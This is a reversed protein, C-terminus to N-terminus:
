RKVRNLKDMDLLTIQSAQIDILGETRLDSLIRIVTETSAGVLHAWNERSLTMPPSVVPAPNDQASASLNEPQPSTPLPYFKQQVMLLAETVRKRVPQYALKLLRDQLSAVEGTLMRILEDVVDPYHLLATVDARPITCVQADELLEATEAYPDDQLLPLYGVFDGTGLLSTIYENGLADQKSLKVVGQHVLYLATPWTGATFLRHKRNYQTTPYNECLTERTGAQNLIARMLKDQRASSTTPDPPTEANKNLRIEVAKLLTLDDFPKTLYDDAGLNMGTRFNGLEAKATLFVFPTDALDPDKRVIHLVGYGDLEPMMIDCIILDPRNQRALEIGAKGNDAQVM